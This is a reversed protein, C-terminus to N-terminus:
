RMVIQIVTPYRGVIAYVLPKAIWVRGEHMRRLHSIEGLHQLAEVAADDALFLSDPVTSDFYLLIPLRLRRQLEAPLAKELRLLVDRDFEYLDGGKTVSSPKDESLLTSLRKREAAVGNNIRGIEFRMWRLLTTEEGSSPRGPMLIM